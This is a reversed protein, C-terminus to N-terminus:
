TLQRFRNADGGIRSKASEKAVSGGHKAVLSEFGSMTGDLGGGEFRRILQQRNPSLCNESRRLIGRVVLFPCEVIDNETYFREWVDVVEGGDDIGNDGRLM